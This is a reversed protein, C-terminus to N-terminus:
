VYQYTPPNTQLKTVRSSLVDDVLFALFLQVRIIPIGLATAISNATRPPLNQDRDNRLLFVISMIEATQVDALTGQPLEETAAAVAAAKRPAARTASNKRTKPAGGGSVDNRKKTAM